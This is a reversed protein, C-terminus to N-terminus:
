EAGGSENSVESIEFGTGLPYENRPNAVACVLGKVLININTAASPFLSLGPAM